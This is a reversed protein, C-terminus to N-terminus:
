GWPFRNLTTWSLVNNKGSTPVAISLADAIYRDESMELPTGKADRSLRRHVLVPDGAELPLWRADVEGAKAASFVNDAAFFHIDHRAALENTVSPCTPDMPEVKTGVWAPYRTRELMIPSGDITRVRLVKLVKEGAPVRLLEADKETQDVWEQHIVHGGPTRGRGYAWQAFSRFKSIEPFRAPMRLVVKRAGRKSSLTGEDVLQNLAQRMTGPAVDFRDALTGESPIAEGVQFRGNRIDERLQQAIQEYRTSM